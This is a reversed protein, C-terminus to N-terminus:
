RLYKDDRKDFAPRTGELIDVIRRNIIPDEISGSTYTVANEDDKQMEACIIQEADCVVALNPNHTVMVIQRRKKANKICPVLTKFVTQNDLNEEPQDIVLPIDDQDVLLYFILLLNGREGPSLQELGKGDWRLNYIPSLFGLSFVFDYIEQVTVGQRLQDKVLLAKGDRETMMGLLAKTFRLTGLASEFSSNDLLRKMEAAGEEDGMFPGLKRRNLRGLFADSFGSEVMSVNFTLQFQESAALPHQKLFKQVAGYYTEYYARLKQKERFIELLRRSRQQRLTKLYSPLGDLDILQKQLAKISGLADETGIIKAKAEFDEESILYADSFDLRGTTLHRSTVLKRGQAVAKPSDHTGDRVSSCFESAPIYRREGAM